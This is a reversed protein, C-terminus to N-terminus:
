ILNQIKGYVALSLLNIIMKKLELRGKTKLLIEQIIDVAKNFEDLGANCLALNYLSKIYEINNEGLIRKRIDVAKQTYEIAKKYNGISIEKTAKDHMSSAYM